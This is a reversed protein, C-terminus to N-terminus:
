ETRVEPRVPPSGSREHQDPSNAPRDQDAPPDRPDPARTGATPWADAPPWLDAPERAPGRPPPSGPPSGPPRSSSPRSSSPRSSSAPSSPPKAPHSERFNEQAPPRWAAADPWRPEASRPGSGSAAP